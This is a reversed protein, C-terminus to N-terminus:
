LSFNHLYRELLSGSRYHWEQRNKTRATTRQQRHLMGTKGDPMSIEEPPCIVATEFSHKRDITNVIAGDTDKNCPTKNYIHTINERLKKNREAHKAIIEKINTQAETHMDYLKKLAGGGVILLTALATGGITLMKRNTAAPKEEKHQEPM